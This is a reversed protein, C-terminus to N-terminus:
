AKKMKSQRGERVRRVGAHWMATKKAVLYLSSKGHQEFNAFTHNLFQYIASLDEVKVAITRFDHIFVPDKEDLNMLYMNEYEDDALKRIKPTERDILYVTRCGSNVQTNKKLVAMKPLVRLPTNNSSDKYSFGPSVRIDDIGIFSLLYARMQLIWNMTDTIDAKADITSLNELIKGAFIHNNWDTLPRDEQEISDIFAVANQLQGVGGTLKSFLRQPTLTEYVFGKTEMWQHLAVAESASLQYNLVFKVTFSEFNSSAFSEISQVDKKLKNFKNSWGTYREPGHIAYFIAPTERKPERSIILGDVGDDQHLRTGIYNPHILTLVYQAYMEFRTGTASELEQISSFTKLRRSDM